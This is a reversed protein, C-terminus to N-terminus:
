RIGDVILIAAALVSTATIWWSVVQLLRTRPLPAGLRMARENDHWRRYSLIPLVIGLGILPVGIVYSEVEEGVEPLLQIVAVGAAVLALSTRMWSLFTRENAFTFRYDPDVGVEHLPQDRM